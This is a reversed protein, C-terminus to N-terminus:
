TASPELKERAAAQKEPPLHSPIMAMRGGKRLVAVYPTKRIREALRMMNELGVKLIALEHTPNAALWAPDHWWAVLKATKYKEDSSRTLLAWQQVRKVTGDGLTERTDVYAFRPDPHLPIGLTTLANVLISEPCVVSGPNIARIIVVGQQKGQAVPAM